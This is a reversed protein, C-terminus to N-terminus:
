RFRGLPQVMSKEYRGAPIRGEKVEEPTPTRSRYMRVRVAVGSPFDRAAQRAVWETFERYSTAYRDWAFRFFASRMRDHDFLRRNWEHESSRERYLTRWTGGELLDIEVRAPYTQPAVFMVWPQRVGVYERYPQFPETIKQQLESWALAFRWARDEFDSPEIGFRDAWARLEAQVTPDKWSERDLGARLSPVALAVVAVVHVLVLAARVHPWLTRWEV